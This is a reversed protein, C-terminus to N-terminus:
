NCILLCSVWNDEKSEEATAIVPLLCLVLLLATLKIMNKAITKKM